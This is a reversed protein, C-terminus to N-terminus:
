KSESGYKPKIETALQFSFSFYTGRNRCFTFTYFMILKKGHQPAEERLGWFGRQDQVTEPLGMFFPRYSPPEEAWLHHGEHDHGPYPAPQSRLLKLSSSSPVEEVSGGGWPAM